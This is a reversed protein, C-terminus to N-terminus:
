RGTEIEIEIEIEEENADGLPDACGNCERQVTVTTPGGPNRVDPTRPRPAFDGRSDAECESCYARADPLLWGLRPWRAFRTGCRCCSYVVWPRPPGTDITVAHCRPCRHRKDENWRSVPLEGGPVVHFGEAMLAIEICTEAPM